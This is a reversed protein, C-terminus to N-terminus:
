LGHLCQLDVKVHDYRIELFIYKNCYNYMKDNSNERKKKFLLSLHCHSGGLQVCGLDTGPPRLSPWRGQRILWSCPEM